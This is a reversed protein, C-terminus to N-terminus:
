CSAVLCEVMDNKLDTRIRDMRKKIAEYSKGEADAIEKFFCGDLMYKKFVRTDAEDLDEILEELLEYDLRMIRIMSIDAVYGAANDIGKLLGPAVEGTAFADELLVNEIAENATKDSTGSTQVRIGAELISKGRGHELEIKIRYLTMKELKRLIKPFTVYNKMLIGYRGEADAERYAQLIDKQTKAM